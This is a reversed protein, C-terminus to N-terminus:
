RPLPAIDKPAPDTALRAHTEVDYREVGYRLKAREVGEAQFGARTAVRCSAPNNVRHGLELRFLSESFAWESASVLGRTILGRGRFEANLWYSVWATGHNFEMSSIGIDGVAVGDVAVAFHRASASETALQNEIYQRCADHTALDQQGFQILLDESGSAADNLAGADDPTWRRLIAGESSEM